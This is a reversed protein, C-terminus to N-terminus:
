WQRIPVLWGDVQGAQSGGEKQNPIFTYHQTSSDDHWHYMRGSCCVSTTGTLQLEQGNQWIETGAYCAKVSCSSV